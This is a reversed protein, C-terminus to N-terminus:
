VKGLFAAIARRADDLMKEDAATLHMISAGDGGPKASRRLALTLSNDYRYLEPDTRKKFQAKPVPTPAPSERRRHDRVGAGPAPAPSRM